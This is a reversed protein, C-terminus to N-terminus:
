EESLKIGLHDYLTRVDVELRKSSGEHFIQLKSLKEMREAEEKQIQAEDLIDLEDQPKRQLLRGRQILNLFHPEHMYIKNHALHLKTHLLEVHTQSSVEHNSLDILPCLWIGGFLTGFARSTTFNCAWHYLGENESLPVGSQANESFFRPEYLSIIRKLQAWEKQMAEKDFRIRHQLEIDALKDIQEDPWTYPLDILQAIEFWEHWFSEPGKNREHMLYLRLITEDRYSQHVFVEEHNKLVEAIESNLATDATIILNNPIACIVEM